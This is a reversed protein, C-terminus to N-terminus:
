ATQLVKDEPQWREYALNSVAGKICQRIEADSMSGADKAGHPFVCSDDYAAWMIKKNPLGRAISRGLDRGPRHGKCEKYGCARCNPRYQFEDFDTMIVVTSFSRNLQAIHHATVHGGLLAVVNPYGSQHIRMADFSAECIIVVEGTKRARHYNWMTLSKPLNNSNKFQKVEISRGIFGVLMGNPDHMPVIVMDKKDSYGVGFHGLTETTFGRSTVLYGEGKSGPLQRAMREVPETPFQTFQPPRSLAEALRDAFHTNQADRYKLIIRATQFPNTKHIRKVMEELTGGQDCSPNFCTWLGKHKDVALAPTDTNGHFPCYGLFHTNTDSVVEVGCYELVAEVQNPSYVEDSTEWENSRPSAM